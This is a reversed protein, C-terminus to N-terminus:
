RTIKAQKLVEIRKEMPLGPTHLVFDGEHHHGLERSRINKCEPYLSYDYSNFSPHDVVKMVPSLYDEYYNYVNQENEFRKRNRLIFENFAEGGVTNKIIVSGGNLENFDRTIYFNYTADIFDTIKKGM